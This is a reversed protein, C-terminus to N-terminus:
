FEELMMVQVESSSEQFSGILEQLVAKYEWTKAIKTVQLCSCICLFAFKLDCISKECANFKM